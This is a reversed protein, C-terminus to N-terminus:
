ATVRDPLMVRCAACAVGHWATAVSVLTPATWCMMRKPFSFKQAPTDVLPMGCVTLRVGRVVQGDYQRIPWDQADLPVPQGTAMDLMRSDKSVAHIIPGGGNIEQWATEGSPEYLTNPM